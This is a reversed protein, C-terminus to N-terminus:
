RDLKIAVKIGFQLAYVDESNRNKTISQYKVEIEKDQYLEKNNWIEQREEDSFGSGIHTSIKKGDIEGICHISGLMNTKRGQGELLEFIRLSAINYADLNEDDIPKYKLLNDDRKYSYPISKSRLMIGEYGQSIFIDCQKKIEDYSNPIIGYSLFEIYKLNDSEQNMKNILDVMETTNKMEGVAFVAFYVEKKEDININKKKVVISQIQNFIKGKILLEGDIFFFGYKNQLKKIEKIIHDFGIFPLGQRSYLNDPDNLSWYARVGDVKPTFFFSQIANCNKKHRFDKYKNALQVNFVPILNKFVSNITKEGIGCKLDKGLIGRFINAAEKTLSNILEFTKDRANNGTIERKELKNLLSKIEDLKSEFDNYGEDTQNINSLNYRIFQNYARYLVFKLIENNKNRELIGKQEIKSQTQKLENIIDEVKM